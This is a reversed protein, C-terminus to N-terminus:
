KGCFKRKRLFRKELFFHIYNWIISLVISFFLVIFPLAWESIAISYKEIIALIISMVGCHVVFIPMSLKEGLYCFGKCFKYIDTNIIFDNKVVILWFIAIIISDIYLFSEGWFANEMLLLINAVIIGIFVKNTYKVNKSHIRNGILFFPLLTFLFNGSIYWPLKLIETMLLNALLLFPSWFFLYKEKNWKLASIWLIYVYILGFLYWMSSSLFSARNFVLFVILTKLNLYPLIWNEGQIYSVVVNLFVCIGSSLITLKVIGNLRKRAIQISKQKDDFDSFYGTILAFFPVAFRGLAVILEGIKTPFQCHIFVVFICAIGKMLNISQNKM